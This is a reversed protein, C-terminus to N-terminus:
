AARARLRDFRHLLELHARSVHAGLLNGTTAGGETIRISTSSSASRWIWSTPFVLGADTKTEQVVGTKHAVAFTKCKRIGSALASIMDDYFQGKLVGIM